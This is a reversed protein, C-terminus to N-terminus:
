KATASAGRSLAGVWIADERTNWLATLSIGAGISWLWISKKYKKDGIKFYVAMFCSIIFLAQAPTISNRYVRQFSQLGYTVPNFLLILYIFSLAYKNKIKDKIVLIFVLVSIIYLVTTGTTYSIGIFNLIGLFLPFFIGKVLTFQGYNGLWKLDLLSDATSLMLRDDVASTTMAFIPLNSVMIIKIIATIFIFLIFWYEKM